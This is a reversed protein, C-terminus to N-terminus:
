FSFRSKKEFISEEAKGQRQIANEWDAGARSVLELEEKSAHSAHVLDYGRDLYFRDWNRGELRITDEAEIFQIVQPILEGFRFSGHSFVSEGLRFPKKCKICKADTYEKSPIEVRSVENEFVEESSTVRAELGGRSIMGVVFLKM